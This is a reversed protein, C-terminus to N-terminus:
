PQWGMRKVLDAFCPGTRLSDLTPDVKIESIEPGHDQCSKELSQSAQHKDGLAAYIM